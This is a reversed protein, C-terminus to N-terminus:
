FLNIIGMRLPVSLNFFIRSGLGGVLEGDREPTGRMRCISVADM